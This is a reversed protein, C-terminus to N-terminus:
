AIDFQNIRVDSIYDLLKSSAEVVVWGELVRNTSTDRM